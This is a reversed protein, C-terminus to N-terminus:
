AKQKLLLGQLQDIAAAMDLMDQSPIQRILEKTSKDFVRVVPTGSTEDVSFQLESASAEVFKQVQKAAVELAERSPEPREAKAPKDAEPSAQTTRAEAPRAAARQGMEPIATSVAKTSIQTDM